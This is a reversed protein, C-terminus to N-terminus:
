TCPKDEEAAVLPLSSFIDGYLKYFMKAAHVVAQRDDDEELRNM